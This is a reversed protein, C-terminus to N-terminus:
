MLRATQHKDKYIKQSILDRTSGTSAATGQLKQNRLHLRPIYGQLRTVKDDGTAPPDSEDSADLYKKM